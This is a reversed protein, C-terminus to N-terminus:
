GGLDVWIWGYLGHVGGGFAFDVLRNPCRCGVLPRGAADTRQLTSAWVHIKEYNRQEAFLKSNSNGLSHIKFRQCGTWAPQAGHKQQFRPFSATKLCNGSDSFRENFHKLIAV